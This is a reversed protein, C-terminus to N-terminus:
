HGRILNKVTNNVTCYLNYAKLRAQAVCEITLNKSMNIFIEDLLRYLICCDNLDNPIGYLQCGMLNSCSKFIVASLTIYFM